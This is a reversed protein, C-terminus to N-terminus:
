KKLEKFAKEQAVEIEIKLEEYAAKYDPTALLDALKEIKKAHLMNGAGLAALVKDKAVYRATNGDFKIVNLELAHAVETNITQQMKEAKKLFGEPNRKAIAMLGNIKGPMTEAFVVFLTCLSNIKEENYRYEREGTKQYLNGIFRIADAEMIAQENFIEEQKGEEIIRYLPDLDANRGISQESYFADILYTYLGKFSGENTVAFRGGKIIIKDELAARNPRINKKQQEEISIEARNKIYRIEEYVGTSKGESDIQMRFGSNPIFRATPADLEHENRTGKTGDLIFGSPRRDVLEVIIVEAKKKSANQEKSDSM